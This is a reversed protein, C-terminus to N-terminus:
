FRAGMLVAFASTKVPAALPDVAINRTGHTFRADVLWRKHQLGGGIIYSFDSGTVEDTIEVQKGSDAVERIVANRRLAIAPGAILFMSTNEHTQKSMRVLLPFELYRVLIVRDAPAPEVAGGPTTVPPADKDRIREGKAAFIVEPQFSIAGGLRMNLFGGFNMTPEFAAPEATDDFADVSTLTTFSPGFRVGYYVRGPGPPEAPAAPAAPAPPTTGAPTGPPTTQAYSPVIAALLLLAVSM